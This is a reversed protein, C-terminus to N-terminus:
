YIFGSGRCEFCETDSSRTAFNEIIRGHGNCTRCIRKGREQELEKKLEDNERSLPNPIADYGHALGYNEHAGDVADAVFEIQADTAKIGAEDMAESVCDKWYDISM